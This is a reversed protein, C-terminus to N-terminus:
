RINFGSFNLNFRYVNSTRSTGQSASFPLLAVVDKREIIAIDDVDPFLFSNSDGKRRLFKVEYDKDQLSIVKGVYYIEMKKAVLFKVLVFDDPSITDQESIMNMEDMIEDDSSEDILVEVSSDSSTSVNRKRTNRKTM